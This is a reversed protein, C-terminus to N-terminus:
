LNARHFLGPIYLFVCAIVSMKFFNFVAQKRNQRYDKQNWREGAEKFNNICDCIYGEIWLRTVFSWMDVVPWPQCVKSQGM